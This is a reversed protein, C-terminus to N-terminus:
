QIEFDIILFLDRELKQTLKASNNKINMSSNSNKIALWDPLSFTITLPDDQTGSQKQFLLALQAKGNQFQLASSEFKIEVETEQKPQTTTLFGVVLKDHEAKIDILSPDLKEGNVKISSVKSSENLYVRLYNKYVGGPWNNDPSDNNLVITATSLLGSEDINTHLALNRLLFYNAKNVGVNAERIAFYIPNCGSGSNANVCKINKLSGDWGLSNFTQQVQNDQHFVLLQGNELSRYLAEFIKLSTQTNEQQLAVFISNALSELFDKKQTSGPFFNVESHYEAVSFLNEATVVLNYDPLEIPGLVGLIEQVTFLNLAIVGDVNIGTEKKFFWEIQKASSPFDPDWNADRMYWGAEGLYKKIEAPPEVHGKLQGDATYVDEVKIDKIQANDLTILAYSGIFGGTPRLESSNQLLILYKKQNSLGFIQPVLDTVNLLDAILRRYFNTKKHVLYLNPNTAKIQAESLGEFGAQLLADVKSLKEYLQRLELNVKELPIMLSNNENTLLDERLSFSLQATRATHFFAQSLLQGIEMYGSAVIKEKELVSSKPLLRSAQTLQSRAKIFNGSAKQALKEASKFNGQNLERYSRLLRVGGLALTSTFLVIPFLIAIIIVFATAILTRKKGKMKKVQKIKSPLKTEERKQIGKAINRNISPSIEETTKPKSSLWKLTKVLGAELSVGPTWGLSKLTQSANDRITLRQRTEIAENQKSITSFEIEYLQNTEKLITERLKYTLNLVTIQEVGIIDLSQGKTAETFMAKIIATNADTIYLPFLPILGEGSVTLSQNNQFEYLLKAMHWSIDLSMRPGYVDWIRSVRSNVTYLNSLEFIMKKIDRVKSIIQYNIDKSVKGQIVDKSKTSSNKFGDMVIVLQFKSDYNKSIELLMRARKEEKSLDELTQNTNIIQFIYNPKEQLRNSIDEADIVVKETFRSNTKLHEIEDFHTTSFFQLDVPLELIQEALYSSIFGENSSIVAQLNNNITEIRHVPHSKSDKKM